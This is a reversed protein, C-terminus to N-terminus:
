RGPLNLIPVQDNLRSRRASLVHPAVSARHLDFVEKDDTGPEVPFDRFDTQSKVRIDVTFLGSVKISPREDFPPKTCLCADRGYPCNGCASFSDDNGCSVTVTLGEGCVTQESVCVEGGVACASSHAALTHVVSCVFMARMEVINSTTVNRPEIGM